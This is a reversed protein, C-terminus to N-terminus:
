QPENAPTSRKPWLVHFTAGAGEASEVRVNGGRTEVIKKVMSLGIGTGEVQDRAQLTAFLAWIREHYEPAIGPGNDAVRFHYFLGEEVCTITVRPDPRQAHKLGNSMLNLFVQQLPVREAQISPMSDGIVVAAPPRPALLDRTEVLLAGVDIGELRERIRGARAYNLIGDILADLRSVRGRLLAMQHRTEDDMKGALGEEIWLSLNSIGRLPAKLDHSAVYAFQDLERNSAALANSLREAVNRSRVQDTVDSAVVAISEFDGAANLVPKYIFNFYGEEITGNREVPIPFENGVFPEGTEYVRDLIPSVVPAIEPLADRLTKGVIARRGVLEIYPPNAFEYVHEPGRLVCIATPAQMLLGYLREREAEAAARRESEIHGRLRGLEIHTRVRAILERASFPKTLYDDAGADLGEVRSEEGVRASLLIVPLARTKEDARIARLLGVGDVNPMMVDTLVLDFAGARIKRLAIEGDLAVEVVFHRALVARVYDRMDASDDVLLVRGGHTQRTPTHTLEALSAGDEDGDIMWRSAEELYPAVGIASSEPLADAGHPARLLRDSGSPMRIVFTTGRGLESEVRVTGGHLKVLEQVLALGIGSGEHTRARAGEVRYFREFLRSMEQPHIGVGTDRVCLEAGDAVRDLTLRISGEFTFKVANSMLNLVIKEWMERDVYTPGDLPACEIELRLGAKDALEQFSGALERTLSALDTAEYKPQVGGAEIRSFELLSNVLKLLRLANRHASVLNKGVLAREPSALADALPGIMLTLPTRFEHSVNNFFTTKQRDIAALAEARLRENEYAVANSIAGVIHESCLEFFAQYRDDLARRPSVGGIFFGYPRELGPRTLLVVVANAVPEPYPGAHIEGFRPTLDDVNEQTLSSLVRALPWGEAASAPTLALSQTTAPGFPDIGATGVLRASRAGDEILYFIAFPVDAPSRELARAANRCADEATKAKSAASALERLTILRREAVVRETTEHVVGLVGGVSGDEDRIPSYSLTFYCEELYGNRDLPLLTDDLAIAEGGYVREFMPGVIPWLEPFSESTRSAMASPHKTAGLVPRYADNYLFIFEPGWLIRMAFRSALMASVLTKLSRPWARVPGLPSHAWDIARMLAGAEGGGALCDEEDAPHLRTM